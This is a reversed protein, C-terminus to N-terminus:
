EFENDYDISSRPMENPVSNINVLSAESYKELRWVKQMFLKWITHWIISINDFLNAMSKSGDSKNEILDFYIDFKPLPFFFM